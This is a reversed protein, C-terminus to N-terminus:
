SIPLLLVMNSHLNINHDQKRIDAQKRLLLVMNSHLHIFRVSTANGVRLLLLVM